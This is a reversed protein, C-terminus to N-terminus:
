FDANAKALLARGAKATRKKPARKDGNMELEWCCHLGYVDEASLDATAEGFLAFTISGVMGIGSTDGDEFRVLAVVRRDNTPPWQLERQDYLEITEPPHGLESPHALWEAMAAVARFSSTRADAPIRDGHGLEELYRQAVASQRPDLALQALRDLGTDDGVKAAAWAAEMRVSPEPHQAAVELLDGRDSLFPLAATASHAYSFNEALPDRLYGALRARGAPTDFPHADIAGAIALQNANDLLTIGVFGEPLPDRLAEMMRRAHPHHEDFRFVASWFYDDPAIPKRV